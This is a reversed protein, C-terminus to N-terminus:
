RGFTELLTGISLYIKQSNDQRDRDNLTFPIRLSLVTLKTGSSNM